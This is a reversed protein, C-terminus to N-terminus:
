VIWAFKWATAVGVGPEPGPGPGTVVGVGVGVRVGVGVPGVGVDVATGVGGGIGTGVGILMEPLTVPFPVTVCGMTYLTRLPCATSATPCPVVASVAVPRGSCDILTVSTHKPM